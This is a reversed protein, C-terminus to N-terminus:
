AHEALLEEEGGGAARVHLLSPTGERGASKMKDFGQRAVALVRTNLRIHPALPLTAALPVLYREALERGTPHEDPDPATWGTGALLAVAGRDVNDAWPSFLRVHGWQRV